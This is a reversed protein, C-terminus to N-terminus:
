QMKYINTYITKSATCHIITISINKGLKWLIFSNTTSIAKNKNKGPIILLIPKNTTNSHNIIHM